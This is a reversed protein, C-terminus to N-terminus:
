ILEVGILYSCGNSRLVKVKDTSCIQQLALCVFDSDGDFCMVELYSVRDYIICESVGYHMKLTHVIKEKM